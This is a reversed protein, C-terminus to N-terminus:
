FLAFILGIIFAAFFFNRYFIIKDRDMGRNNVEAFWL